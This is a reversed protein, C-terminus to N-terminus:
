CYTGISIYFETASVSGDVSLLYQDSDLVSPVASRLSNGSNYGGISVDGYFLAPFRYGRVSDGEEQVQVNTVDIYLGSLYTESSLTKVDGQDDITDIDIDIGVIQQDSSGSLSSNNQSVIDLNYTVM